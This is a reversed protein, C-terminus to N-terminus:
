LNEVIMAPVLLDRYGIDAGEVYPIYYSFNGKYDFAGGVGHKFMYTKSRLTKHLEVAAKLNSMADRPLIGTLRETAEPPLAILDIVGLEELPFDEAIREGDFFTMVGKERALSAAKLASEVPIDLSVYVADPLTTFADEVDDPTIKGLLTTRVYSRRADGKEVISIDTKEGKVVKVFRTDMGADKFFSVLSDGYEDSGVASCVIVEGGLKSVACAAISATGDPAIDYDFAARKEEGDKALTDLNLTVSAALGGIVLIRKKM